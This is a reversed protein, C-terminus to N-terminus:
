KNDKMQKLIKWISKDSLFYKEALEKVTLGQCYEMYIEENRCRLKEKSHTTQGWEMKRDERRPIYINVGDAYQQIMEIIKVPLIDEAKIYGM